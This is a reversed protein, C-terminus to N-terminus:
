TGALPIADTKLIRPHIAAPWLYGMGTSEAHSSRNKLIKYTGRATM